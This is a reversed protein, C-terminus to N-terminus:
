STLSGPDELRIDLILIHYLDKTLLELAENASAAARALYGSRQLTVVLEDRWNKADDVILVSGQRVM